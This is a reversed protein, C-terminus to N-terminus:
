YSGASAYSGAGDSVGANASSGFSESSGAGFAAAQPAPSEAVDAAREVTMSSATGTTGFEVIVTESGEDLQFPVRHGSEVLSDVLAGTALRHGIAKFSEFSLTERGVITKGGARRLYLREGVVLCLAEGDTK